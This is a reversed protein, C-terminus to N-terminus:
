KRGNRLAERIVGRIVYRLREEATLVPSSSTQGQRGLRNMPGQPPSFDLAPKAENGTGLKTKPPAGKFEKKSRNKAGKAQAVAEYVITRLQRVSIKKM